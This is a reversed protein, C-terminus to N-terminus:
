CMKVRNASLYAAITKARFHISQLPIDAYRLKFISVKVTIYSASM